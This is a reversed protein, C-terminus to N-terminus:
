GEYIELDSRISVFYLFPDFSLMHLSLIHVFTIFMVNNLIDNLNFSKMLEM